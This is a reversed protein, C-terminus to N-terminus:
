YSRTSLDTKGTADHPRMRTMVKVDTLDDPTSTARSFACAGAPDEQVAWYTPTDAPPTSSTPM